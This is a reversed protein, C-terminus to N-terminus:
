DGDRAEPLVADIKLALWEYDNGDADEFQPLEPFERRVTKLLDVLERERERLRGIVEDQGRITADRAGIGDVLHDDSIELRTRLRDVEAEASNLSDLLRGNDHKLAELEAMTGLSNTGFDTM